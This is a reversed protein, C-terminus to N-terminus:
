AAPHTEVSGAIRPVSVPYLKAVIDLMDNAIECAEGIVDDLANGAPLIVSHLRHLPNGCIATSATRVSAWNGHVFASTWPYFRDYSDKIGAEESLKRLDFNAWHGLNISIFEPGKDETALQELLEPTIFDPPEVFEEIKLMALKAQAQGYVRYTEWLAKDDKHALYALTAYTDFLARLGLRGIIGQGIGIGFLEIVINLAYATLGFAAGHRADPGSTSATENAAQALRSLVAFVQSRDVRLVSARPIVRLFGNCPTRKLCQRWFSEAWGDRAQQDDNPNEAIEIARIFPRVARQDGENPYYALQRFQEETALKLQGTAVKFLVRAWRVDTAEQSQHFLVKSVAHALRDWCDLGVGAPLYATWRQRGPLDDFLMLPELARRLEPGSCVIRLIRGSLGVPMAAIGTLTIDLDEGPKFENQCAKAVTRIVELAHGRELTGVLLALWVQDPLRTHLWSALKVNKLKQFPPHLFKGERHHKEVPLSSRREKANKRKRNKSM